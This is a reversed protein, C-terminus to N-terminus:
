EDYEEMISEIKNKIEGNWMDSINELYANIIEEASNEIEKQYEWEDCSDLNGYANFRVYSDTYNYNGYCVARVAEDVKDAFFMEFFEEDNEYYNLDELEGDWSNVDQAMERLEEITLEEKLKEIM